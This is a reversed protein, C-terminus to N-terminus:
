DLYDAFGSIAQWPNGANARNQTRDKEVADKASMCPRTRCLIRGVGPILFLLAIRPDRVFAGLRVVQWAGSSNDFLSPQEV